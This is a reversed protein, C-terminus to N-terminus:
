DNAASAPSDTYVIQTVHLQDVLNFREIVAPPHGELPTCILVSSRTLHVLEPHRVEYVSGDSVHIRLPRFPRTQLPDLIENQRM